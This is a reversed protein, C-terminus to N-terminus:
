PASAIIICKAAPSELLGDVSLDQSYIAFTLADGYMLYLLRVLYSLLPASCAGVAFFLHTAISAHGQWGPGVPETAMTYSLLWVGAVAVGTASQLLLYWWFSPALANTCTLLSALGCSM